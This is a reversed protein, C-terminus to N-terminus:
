YKLTEFEVRGCGAQAFSPSFGYYGFVVREAVGCQAGASALRLQCFGNDWNMVACLENEACIQCCSSADPTQQGDSFSQDDNYNQIYSVDTILNSPACKAAQTITPSAATATYVTSTCIVEDV